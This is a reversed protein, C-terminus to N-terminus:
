KIPIQIEIKNIKGDKDKTFYIEKVPNCQTYGNLLMWKYIESYIFDINNQGYNTIYSVVKCEDIIKSKHLINKNIHKIPICTIIHEKGDIKDKKFQAFPNGVIELKNTKAYEIISKFGGSIDDYVEVEKYLVINKKILKIEINNLEM